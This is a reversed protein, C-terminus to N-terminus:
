TVAYEEWERAMTKAMAKAAARLWKAKRGRVDRLV